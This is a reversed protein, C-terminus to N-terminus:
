LIYNFFFTLFFLLQFAIASLIESSVVLGFVYVYAISVTCPELNETVTWVTKM